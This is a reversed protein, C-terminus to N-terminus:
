DLLDGELYLGRDSCVDVMPEIVYRVASTMFEDLRFNMLGGKDSETAVM